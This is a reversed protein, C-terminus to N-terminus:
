NGLGDNWSLGAGIFPLISQRPGVGITPHIDLVNPAGYVISKEARPAASGAENPKGGGPPACAVALAAAALIILRSHQLPTMAKGQSFLATAIRSGTRASSRTRTAMASPSRVYRLITWHSCTGM